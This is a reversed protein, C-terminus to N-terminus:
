EAEAPTSTREFQTLLKKGRGSKLLCDEHYFTSKPSFWGQGFRSNGGCFRCAWLNQRDRQWGQALLWEWFAKSM